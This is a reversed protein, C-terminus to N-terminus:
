GLRGSFAGDFVDTYPVSDLKHDINRAAKPSNYDPKLVVCYTLDTYVIWCGDVTSLWAGVGMEVNIARSTGTDALFAARNGEGEVQCCAAASVILRLTLLDGSLECKM